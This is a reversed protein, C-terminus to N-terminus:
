IRCTLVEDASTVSQGEVLEPRVTRRRNGLYLFMLKFRMRQSHTSKVALSNNRLPKPYKEQCELAGATLSGIKPDNCTHNKNVDVPCRQRLTRAGM